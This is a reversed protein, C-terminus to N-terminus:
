LIAKQKSDQQENWRRLLLSIENDDDNEADKGKEKGKGKGENRYDMYPHENRSAISDLLLRVVEAYGRSAAVRVPLSQFWEGGWTVVDAKAESLLRVCELSGSFCAHCLPSCELRNTFATKGVGKGYVRSLELKKLAYQGADVRAELLLRVVNAAGASCAMNMFCEGDSTVVDAGDQFGFHSGMCSGFFLAAEFLLHAASSAKERALKLDLCGRKILAATGEADDALCAYTFYSIVFNHDQDIHCGDELHQLLDKSLSHAVQPQGCSFAAEFAVRYGSCHEIGAILCRAVDLHGKRVASYLARLYDSGKLDHQVLKTLLRVVDLHGSGSAAELAAAYAECSDMEHQAHECLFQVVEPHGHLSAVRLADGSPSEYDDHYDDNIIETYIETQLLDQGHETM